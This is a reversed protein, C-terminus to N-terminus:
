REGDTDCGGVPRTQKVANLEKIQDTVPGTLAAYKKKKTEHEM